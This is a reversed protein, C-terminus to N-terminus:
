AARRLPRPQKKLGPIAVLFRTISALAHRETRARQRPEDTHADLGGEGFLIKVGRHESALEPPMMEMITQGLRICANRDHLKSAQNFQYTLMAEQNSLAALSDQILAHSAAEDLNNNGRVSALTAPGNYLWGRIAISAAATLRQDLGGYIEPMLQRAQKIRDPTVEGPAGQRGHRRARSSVDEKTMQLTYSAGPSVGPLGNLLGDRISNSDFATLLALGLRGGSEDASIHSPVLSERALMDALAAVSNLPQYGGGATSRTLRGTSIRYKQEAPTFSSSHGNGPFAVYLFATNPNAAGRAALEIANGVNQTLSSLSTSPFIVLQIGAAYQNVLAIEASRGSQKLVRFSDNIELLKDIYHTEDIEPLPAAEVPGQIQEIGGNSPKFRVETFEGAM